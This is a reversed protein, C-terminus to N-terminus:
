NKRRERAHLSAPGGYPCEASQACESCLRQLQCQVMVDWALRLEERDAADMGAYVAQLEKGVLELAEEGSSFYPLFKKFACEGLLAPPLMIAPVERVGAELSRDGKTLLTWLQGLTQDMAVELAEPPIQRGVEHARLLIEWCAKEAPQFAQYAELAVPSM